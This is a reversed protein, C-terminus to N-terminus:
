KRLRCKQSEVLWNVAVALVFLTKQALQQVKLLAEKSAQSKGLNHTKIAISNVFLSQEKLFQFASSDM